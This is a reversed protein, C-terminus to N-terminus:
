KPIAAAEPQDSDAAHAKLYDLIADMEDETIKDALDVEHRNRRFYKGWVVAAKDAPNIPPAAGGRKHCAGCKAVFLRAGGGALVPVAWFMAAMVM